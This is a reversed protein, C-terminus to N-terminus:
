QKNIMHARILETIHELRSSHQVISPTITVLLEIRDSKNQHVNFMNGIIPIDKLIPIGAHSKNKKDHVLGALMVSSGSNVIIESTISRTHVTPVTDTQYRTYDPASLTQSISLIVTHDSSIIPTVELILGVTKIEIKKSKIVTAGTTAISSQTAFPVQDAVTLRATKNNLVTIYPSSIVRVDTVAQLAKLVVDVPYGLMSTSAKIGGRVPKHPGSGRIPSNIPDGSDAVFKKGSLFWQVGYELNKNLRVEIITADIIVQPQQIDIGNLVTQLRRFFTYNSYVLLSNNHEDAVIKTQPSIDQPSERQPKDKSDPTSDEEDQQPQKNTGKGMNTFISSLQSAVAKANLYLLPIVRLNEENSSVSDMNVVLRRLGEMIYRDRTGVLIARQAALPIITVDNKQSGLRKQYFNNLQTAIKLPDNKHINIIAVRDEGIGSSALLEILNVAAEIDNTPARVLIKGSGGAYLTVGSHLIQKAFAIIEQPNGDQIKVIRASYLAGSSTLHQMRQLLKPTAIHYVGNIFKIVYGHRGLIDRVIQMIQEKPVPQDVQLSISGPMKDPAIYSVGLAGELLQRLIHKMSVSKFNVRVHEQPFISTKASATVESIDKKLTAISPTEYRVRLNGIYGTM